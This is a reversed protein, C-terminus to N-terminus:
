KDQDPKVLRVNGEDDSVVRRIDNQIRSDDSRQSNIRDIFMKVAKVNKGSDDYFSVFKIEPHDQLYKKIVRVKAIPDKSGVGSFDIKESPNKIGIKKELFDMVFPEVEPGRATLILVKRNGDARVFRTLLGAILSIPEAQDINVKDFEKFAVEPDFYEDPGLDYVAFEESSIMKYGPDIGPTEVRVRETTYAITDDFDLVRLKQPALDKIQERILQRLLKESSAM